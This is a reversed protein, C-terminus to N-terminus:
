CRPIQKKSVQAICIIWLCPCSSCWMTYCIPLTEQMVQRVCHCKYQTCITWHRCYCSNLGLASHPHSALRAPVAHVSSRGMSAEFWSACKLLWISQSHLGHFPLAPQDSLSESRNTTSLKRTPSERWPDWVADAQLICLDDDALSDKSVRLRQEVGGDKEQLINM